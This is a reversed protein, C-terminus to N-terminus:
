ADQETFVEKLAQPMSLVIDAFAEPLDMSRLAHEANTLRAPILHDGSIDKRNVPALGARLRKPQHTPWALVSVGSPLTFILSDYRRSMTIKCDFEPLVFEVMHYPISCYLEGIQNGYLEKILRVQM